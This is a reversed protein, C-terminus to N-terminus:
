VLDVYAASAAIGTGANVAVTGFGGFSAQKVVEGAPKYSGDFNAVKANGVVSDVRGAEGAGKM